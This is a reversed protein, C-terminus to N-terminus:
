IMTEKNEETMSKWGRTGLKLDLKMQKRSGLRWADENILKYKKMKLDGLNRSEYNETGEDRTGSTGPQQAEKM